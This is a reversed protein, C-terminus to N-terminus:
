LEDALAYAHSTMSLALCLVKSPDLGRALYGSKPKCAMQM